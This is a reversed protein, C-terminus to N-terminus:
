GEEYVIDCELYYFIEGTKLTKNDIRLKKVTSFKETFLEATKSKQVSM